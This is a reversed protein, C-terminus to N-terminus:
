DEIKLSGSERDDEHDGDFGYDCEDAEDAEGLSGTGHDDIFHKFESMLRARSRTRKRSRVHRERAPEGMSHEGSVTHGWKKWAWWGVFSLGGVILLTKFTSAVANQQPQPAHAQQGMAQAPVWGMGQPTQVLMMQMTRVQPQQPQVQPPHAWQMAHHTPISRM